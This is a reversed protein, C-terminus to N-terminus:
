LGVVVLKDTGSVRITCVTSSHIEVLQMGRAKGRRVLDAFTYRDLKVRMTSSLM